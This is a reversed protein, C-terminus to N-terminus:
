CFQGVFSADRDAAAVDGGPFEQRQQSAAASGESVRAAVSFVYLQHEGFEVRPPTSAHTGVRGWRRAGAGGRGEQECGEGEAGGAALVGKKELM